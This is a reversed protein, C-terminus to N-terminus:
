FAGCWELKLRWRRVKRLGGDGTLHDVFVCPTGPHTLIYAYGEQLHHSPFPWHNLTSGTDHQQQHQPTHHPTYTPTANHQRTLTTHQNFGERPRRERGAEAQEEEESQAAEERRRPRQEAGGWM